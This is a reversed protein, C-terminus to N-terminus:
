DSIDEDDAFPEPKVFLKKFQKSFSGDTGLTWDEFVVKKYVRTLMTAAQERNLLADPAFETESMGATIGTSYAKLVDESDTDEFPNDCDIVAEEGSLAEYVKVSVAAFEERTIPQTLDAGVLSEPILGLADAETLEEIAWDSAKEWKVANVSLINSWDSTLSYQKCSFRIRLELPSNERVDTLGAALHTGSTLITNEETYTDEWKGNAIRYQTEIGVTDYLGANIIAYMDAESVNQPTELNYYLWPDGDIMEISLDSIVPADLKKPRVLVSQTGKKGFSVVPSWDGILIQEDAPKETYCRIIYRYRVSFTHNELDLRYRADNDITQRILSGALFGVNSEDDFVANLYSLPAHCKASEVDEGIDIIHEFVPRLEYNEYEYGFNDWLDVYQWDGSDVKCDAQLRVDIGYGTETLFDTGAAKYENWQEALSRLENPQTWWIYLTDDTFDGSAREIQVYPADTPSSLEGDPFYTDFPNADAAAAFTFAAALSLTFLLKKM